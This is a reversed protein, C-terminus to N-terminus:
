RSVGKVWAYLVLSGVVCVLLSMVCGVGAHILAVMALFAIGSVILEIM